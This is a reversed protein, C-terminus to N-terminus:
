RAGSRPSLRPLTPLRNNNNYLTSNLSPCALLSVLVVTPLHSAASITPLYAGILYKTQALVHSLHRWLYICNYSRVRDGKGLKEEIEKRITKHRHMTFFIFASKFRKPAGPAKCYKVKTKKAPAIAKKSLSPFTSPMPAALAAAAAATAAANVGGANANTGSEGNPLPPPLPAPALDLPAFSPLPPPGDIAAVPAPAPAPAPASSAPPAPASAEPPQAVEVIAGQKANNTGTSITSSDTAVNVGYRSAM